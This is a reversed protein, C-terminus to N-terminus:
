HSRQVRHAILLLPICRLPSSVVGTVVAKTQFIASLLVEQRDQYLDILQFAFIIISSFCRCIFVNKPTQRTFEINASLVVVVVVCLMNSRRWHFRTNGQFSRRFNGRVAPTSFIYLSHNTKKKKKKGLLPQLRCQKTKKEPQLNITLVSISVLEHSSQREIEVYICGVALGSPTPGPWVIYIADKFIDPPHMTQPALTQQRRGVTDEWLDSFFNKKQGELRISFNQRRTQACWRSFPKRIM